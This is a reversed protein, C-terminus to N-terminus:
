IFKTEINFTLYNLGVGTRLSLRNSLRFTINAGAEFNIEPKYIKKNTSTVHYHAKIYTSDVLNMITYSYSDYQNSFIEEDQRVYNVKGYLSFQQSKLSTAGTIIIFFLICNRM